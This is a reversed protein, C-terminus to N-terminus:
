RMMLALARSAMGRVWLGDKRGKCGNSGVYRGVVSEDEITQDPEGYFIVVAEANLEGLEIDLLAAELAQKPTWRDIEDL